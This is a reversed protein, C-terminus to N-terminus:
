RPAYAHLSLRVQASKRCLREVVQEEDAGEALVTVIPWGPKVVTGPPPIDALTPWQQGPAEGLSQRLDTAVVAADTAFVIAKGCVLGRGVAQVLPLRNTECANVHLEVAAIGTAWELIEVSATFRPNVEVPWVGQENVVMDVGFLGRLKFEAALVDGIRHFEATVSDPWGIPGFSGCYRFGDAGTWPTGILQRTTGLLTCGANAGLYVASCATGAVYEQFFTGPRRSSERDINAFSIGAGGASLLPKCLWTGDAPVEERASVIRPCAIGSARLASTL